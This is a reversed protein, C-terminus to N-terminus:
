VATSRKRPKKVPVEVDEIVEPEPFAMVAHVKRVCDREIPSMFHANGDDDVDLEWSGSAEITEALTSVTHFDTVGTFDECDSVWLELKLSEEDLGQRFAEELRIKSLLLSLYPSVRDLFNLPYDPYNLLPVPSTLGKGTVADPTYLFLMTLKKSVTLM